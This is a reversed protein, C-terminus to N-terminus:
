PRFEQMEPEPRDTRARQARFRDEAHLINGRVDPATASDQECRAPAQGAPAADPARSDLGHRGWQYIRQAFKFVGWTRVVADLMGLVDRAADIVTASVKDQDTGQGQMLTGATSGDARPASRHAMMETLAKDAEASVQHGGDIAKRALDMGQISLADKGGAFFAEVTATDSASGVFFDLMALGTTVHHLATTVECGVMTSATAAGIAAAFGAHIARSKRVINM